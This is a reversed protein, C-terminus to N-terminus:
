RQVCFEMEDRKKQPMDRQYNGITNNIQTYFVHHWNEVLFEVGDHESVEFIKKKREQEQRRGTVISYLQHTM